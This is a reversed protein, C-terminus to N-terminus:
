FGLNQNSGLLGILYWIIEDFILVIKSDFNKHWITDRNMWITLEFAQKSVVFILIIPDLWNGFGIMVLCKISLLKQIAPFNIETVTSSFM